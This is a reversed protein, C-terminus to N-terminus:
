LAQSLISLDRARTRDCWAMLTLILEESLEESRGSWCAEPKPLRYFLIAMHRLLFLLLQYDWAPCSAVECFSLAFLVRSQQSPPSSGRDLCPSRSRLGPCPRGSDFSTPNQVVETGCFCVILHCQLKSGYCRKWSISYKPRSVDTNRGQWGQIRVFVFTLLRRYEGPVAWILVIQFPNTQQTCSKIPRQVMYLENHATSAHVCWWLLTMVENKPGQYAM